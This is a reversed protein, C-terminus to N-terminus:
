IEDKRIRHTQDREKGELYFNKGQMNERQVVAGCIDSKRRESGDEGLLVSQQYKSSKCVKTALQEVTITEKGEGYHVLGSYGVQAVRQTKPGRDPAIEALKM